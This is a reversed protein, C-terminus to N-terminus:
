PVGPRVKKASRVHCRRMTSTEVIQPSAWEVGMPEFDVTNRTVVTLAWALATGGILADHQPSQDPVHLPAVRRAAALDLPVIRRAFGTLVQEEFWRRLTAAQAPDRREALLIGTEIEVVTVVSIALDTAPKSSVWSKVRPDGAKKRLESVVNTDLLFRV